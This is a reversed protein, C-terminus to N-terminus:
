SVNKKKRAGFENQDKVPEYLDMGSITDWLSAQLQTASQSQSAPAFGQVTAVLVIALVVSYSQM